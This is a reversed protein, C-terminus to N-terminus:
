RDAAGCATPKEKPKDAPGCSAPVEKPKDAPGCSASVERAGWGFLNALSMMLEETRQKDTNEADKNYFAAGRFFLVCM